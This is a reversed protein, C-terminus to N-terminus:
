WLGWINSLCAPCNVFNRDITQLLLSEQMALTQQHNCCANEQYFTECTRRALAPVPQIQNLTITSCKVNFASYTESTPPFEHTPTGKMVCFQIEQQEDINTDSAKTQIILIVILLGFFSHRLNITRAM